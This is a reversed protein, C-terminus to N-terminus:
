EFDLKSLESQRIISHLTGIKIEKHMPIPVPITSDETLKQMIVPSGKQRVKIFGHKSLIFCIDKGSLTRM